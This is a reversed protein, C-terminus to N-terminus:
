RRVPQRKARVRGPRDDPDDHGPAPKGRGGCKTHAFGLFHGFEHNIVGAHYEDISVPYGRSGQLWRRLNIMITRGYKCSYVGETDVGSAGCLGDVTAKLSTLRGSRRPRDGPPRRRHHWRGPRRRGTRHAPDPHGAPPM